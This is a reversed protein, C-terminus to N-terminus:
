CGARGVVVGPDPGDYIRGEVAALTGTLAAVALDIFLVLLM